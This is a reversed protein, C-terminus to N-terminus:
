IHSQGPVGLNEPNEDQSEKIGKNKPSELSGLLGCTRIFGNFAGVNDADDKYGCSVCEFTEGQRNAKSVKGCGGKLTPCERSTNRPDYAVQFVRNEQAKHSIRDRVRRQCWSALIKRQQKTTTEKGNKIGKLEEGGLFRWDAWPMLNLTKNLYNERQAYAEKRGQSGKKRRNIKNLIENWGEEGAAKEEKSIKGYQNGLADVALKKKGQDLASTIGQNKYPLTPLKVFLIVSDENLECGQILEAGDKALWKRLVETGKLPLVIPHRKRLTSLTLCWDFDKLHQSLEIKIFKKDLRAGGQFHPCSAPVGLAKASKKTDVVIQLAQKLAQSKYRETLRTKQLRALTNADLKGKQNWLSKIFFNVGARYAELLTTNKAKKSVTAYKLTLPIARLIEEAKVWIKGQKDTTTKVPLIGNQHWLLVSEYPFSNEVAWTRLSLKNTEVWVINDKDKSLKLDLAGTAVEQSVLTESYGHEKAWQELTIKNKKASKL